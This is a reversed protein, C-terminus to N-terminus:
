THTSRSEASSRSTRLRHPCTGLPTSPVSAWTAPRLMSPSRAHHGARTIVWCIPAIPTGRPTVQSKELREGDVWVSTLVRDTSLSELVEPATVVDRLPTQQISSLFARQNAAERRYDLEDVFGRGWDDVLGVLDSNLGQAEKLRAAGSRLLLLDLSIRGLLDPRQVKIAVERGDERLTGRYVQGLSAAAVPEASLSSFLNDVQTPRPPCGPKGLTRSLLYTHWVDDTHM